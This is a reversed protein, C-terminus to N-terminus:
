KKKEGEKLLLIKFGKPQQFFIKFYLDLLNHPFLESVTLCILVEDPNKKQCFM